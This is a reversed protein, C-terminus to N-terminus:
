HMGWALRLSLMFRQRAKLQHNGLKLRRLSLIIATCWWTRGEFTKYNCFHLLCCWIITERWKRPFHKYQTSSVCYQSKNSWLVATSQVVGSRHKNFLYMHCKIEQHLCEALSGWSVVSHNRGGNISRRVQAERSRSVSFVFRFVEKPQPSQEFIFVGEM